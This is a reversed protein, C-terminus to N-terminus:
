LSGNCNTDNQCTSGTGHGDHFTYDASLPNEGFISLGRVFVVLALCGLEWDEVLAGVMPATAFM